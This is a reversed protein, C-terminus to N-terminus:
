LIESSHTLQAGTGGLAGNGRDAFPVALELNIGFGADFAAGASRCAGDARRGLGSCPRLSVSFAMEHVLHSKEPPDPSVPIFCGGFPPLLFGPFSGPFCFPERGVGSAMYVM